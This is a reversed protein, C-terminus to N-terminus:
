TARMLAPDDFMVRLHRLRLHAPVARLRGDARQVLVSVRHGLRRVRAADEAASRLAERRDAFQGFHRRQYTVTWHSEDREVVYECDVVWGM